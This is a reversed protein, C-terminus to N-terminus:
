TAAAPRLMRRLTADRDLLHHKLAGLVHLALLPLLVLNAAVKHVVEGAEHLGESQPVFPLPVPLGFFQPVRGGAAVLLLGSLPLVIMALLLLRHVIAALRELLPSGQTAPQPMGSAARWVLRAVALLLFLLGFSVHLGTYFAREPGRPLEEFTWGLWILAALLIAMSWHLLISVLGYGTCSDKILM